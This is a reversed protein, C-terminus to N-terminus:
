DRLIIRNLEYVKVFYILGKERGVRPVINGKCCFLFYRGFTCGISSTCTDM